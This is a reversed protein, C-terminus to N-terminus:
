EGIEKLLERARKYTDRDWESRIVKLYLRAKELDGREILTEAIKLPLLYYYEQRHTAETLNKKLRAYEKLAEDIRHEGQLITGIRFTAWNGMDIADVNYCNDRIRQYAELAKLPEQNIQYGRGLFYGFIPNMPYRESLSGFRKIAEPGNNEVQYYYYALYYEAEISTWQGKEISTELKRIGEDRSGSFGILAALPKLLMPADSLFCEAVGLAFYADYYDPHEEVLDDLMGMGERADLYAQFWKEQEVNFRARNCYSVGCFFKADVNDRNEKYRRRSYGVAKDLFDRARDQKEPNIRDSQFEWYSASAAFFSWFPDESALAQQKFWTFATPDFNYARNMADHVEPVSIEEAWLLVPALMCAFLFFYRKSFM